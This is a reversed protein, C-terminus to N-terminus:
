GTLLLAIAAFTLPDTTSVGFLLTKMLRTLALSAALGLAVGILAPKMGQKVVLRLVDRSQAGLAMRIGIEHTRQGVAFAMVGYLRMAALALALVGFLGALTTGLRLPGFTDKMVEAFPKIGIKLNPDLARVARRLTEALTGSAADSKVLLAKGRDELSLPRYIYPDDAVDLRTNRTDKAVGVIEKAGDWYWLYKG